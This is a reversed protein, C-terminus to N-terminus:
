LVVATRHPHGLAEVEPAHPDVRVDGDHRLHRVAAELVGAVALVQRHVAELVVGADLVHHGVDPLLRLRNWARDRPPARAPATHSRAPAPPRGESLPGPTSAGPTGTGRAGHHHGPRPQRPM